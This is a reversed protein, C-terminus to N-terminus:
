AHDSREKKPETSRKHACNALRRNGVGTEQDRGPDDAELLPRAGRRPRRRASDGGGARRALLVGLETEFGEVLGFCLGTEAEWETIYWTWNSYPSFLKAHALVSDYDEVNENAYLPPITDALEKTMLKHRRLSSHNDQWITTTGNKDSM